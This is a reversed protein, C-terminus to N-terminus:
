AAFGSEAEAERLARMAERRQEKSTRDLILVGDLHDIEHQIVRAELGSAEVTRHSGGADLARVRVHVAREVDVQVGPLSLCGEEMVEVEPSAWEIEPNVLVVPLQEYGVQYVLLRRSSGIQPAALGIGLSDRMIVVMREAAERLGDDFAEVARAATKLVPDGFQHIEALARRRREIVEAPLADDSEEATDHLAQSQAGIRDAPTSEDYEASM